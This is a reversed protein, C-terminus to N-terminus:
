GNLKKSGVTLEIYTDAGSEVEQVKLDIGLKQLVTKLAEIGAYPHHGVQCIIGHPNANMGTPPVDLFSCLFYSM